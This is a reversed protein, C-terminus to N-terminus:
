KEYTAWWDRVLARWGEWNARLEDAAIRRLCEATPTALLIVDAGDREYAQRQERRPAMEILWAHNVNSRTRLREVVADHAESVFPLLADAKSYLPRGSLASYLADFDVILDGPKAHETVYTTKGAGPPGCVVTVPIAFMPKVQTTSAEVTEAGRRARSKIRAQIEQGTKANSCRRCLPQWNGQNWFMADNAGHPRVHDVFTATTIAGKRGCEACYRHLALFAKREKRWRQTQYLSSSRRARAFLAPLRHDPCPQLKPCIPNRCPLRPKTPM